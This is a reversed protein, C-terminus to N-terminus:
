SCKSGSVTVKYNKMKSSGNQKQIPITVSSSQNPCSKVRGEFSKSTGNNYSVQVTVTVNACTSESDNELTVVVQDGELRDQTVMITSGDNTGSIKCSQANAAMSIGILAVLILFYKKM